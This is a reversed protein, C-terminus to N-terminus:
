AAPTLAAGVFALADPTVRNWFGRTHAGPSFAAIAPGGPVVAVLKQVSPYLPDATGCWIGTRDGELADAGTFIEDGPSVAPSLAATALLWGPNREAALLTGHGGMSWGYAAMRSTDFGREDCWDPVEEHLMRQPDDTSGNGAWFTRGGDAGALVFPPVGAQVAATLFQGFGFADYRATTATAGHLILCVPLGKGDGYGEPVATFFGVQQGRAASTRQELAITGASVAPITGDVGTDKFARRIRAPVPVVGSAVGAAGLALIGVGLGGVLLARRGFSHPESLDDPRVDGADAEVPADEDTL